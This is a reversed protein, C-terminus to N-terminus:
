GTMLTDQDLMRAVPRCPQPAAEVAMLAEHAHRIEGRAGNVGEVGARGVVKARLMCHHYPDVWLIGGWAPAVTM